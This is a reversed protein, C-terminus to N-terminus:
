ITDGECTAFLPTVVENSEVVLTPKSVTLLFVFIYFPKFSAPRFMLRLYLIQGALPFINVFLNSMNPFINMRNRASNSSLVSLVRM